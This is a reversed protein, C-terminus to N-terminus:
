EPGLYNFSEIVVRPPYRKEVPLNTSTRTPDPSGVVKVVARLAVEATIAYNTCLGAYQGSPIISDPAPQLAQGYSYVVFRPTGLQVLSLMQQPLWEYAADNLGRQRANPSSRNLFPSQDTLEPVALIDGLHEFTGNAFFNLNSRTQNIGNVLRLLPPWTTDDFADFAGAPQIILPSFQPAASIGATVPTDNTLVVMGSFLASWAALGTQNIPLRGRSANDNLATTFVDFLLRDMVPRSYFGEQLSRNGTWKAWKDAANKFNPNLAWATPTFVLNTLGVNSAKLYITQWPSGRHIRGLWGLTPLTNTPFEWDDSGRVLPDKIAPNFADPDSATAGPDKAWPQYRANKLGINAM